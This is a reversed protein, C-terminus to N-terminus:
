PHQLAATKASVAGGPTPFAGSACGGVCKRLLLDDVYAGEPYTISDDSRFVVAIWVQPQGLLSGLTFVDNLDLGTAVFNGGSSGSFCTGANSTYFNSNDVSAVLCAKDFTPETNLWLKADLEAHTADVLSFPGYVM